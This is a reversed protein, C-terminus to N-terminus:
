EVWIPGSVARHQVDVEKVEVYYFLGRYDTTDTYSLHGRLSSDHLKLTYLPSGDKKLIIEAIPGQGEANVEFHPASSAIYEDGMIHGDASFDLLIRPGSTAYCHRAFLADLISQRDNQAALVAAMPSGVVVEGWPYTFKDPLKEESPDARYGVDPFDARGYGPRGLHDDSSGIFGSHYGRKLWELAWVENWGAESTLELVPSFQSDWWPPDAAGGRVHPIVLPKVGQESALRKLREYLWIIHPADPILGSSWASFPDVPMYFDNSRYCQHGPEAYYVNHNGGDAPWASWEYGYFTVFQPPHNFLTALQQNLEWRVNDINSDHDSLAFFDLGAVERAYLFAHTPPGTGDSYVSHDHLDGWYTQLGPPSNSCRSPNSQAALQRAEDDAQIRYTGAQRFHVDSFIHLGADPPEFVYSSPLNGLGSGADLRVTGRYSAALNGYSDEVRLIVRFPEGAITNSPVILNLREAPGASLRVSLHQPIPILQDDQARRVCALFLAHERAVPPSRFGPSGQTRDGFVLRITGAPPLRGKTVTVETFHQWNGIVPYYPTAFRYHQEAYIPLTVQGSSTATVYDPVKADYTQATGWGSVHRVGIAVSGGENLGASGATFIFTWQGYAAAPVMAPEQMEVTPDQGSNYASFLRPFGRAFDQWFTQDRQSANSWWNLGSAEQGPLRASPQGLLIATAMVM